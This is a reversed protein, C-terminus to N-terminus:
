ARTSPEPCLHAEFGRAEVGGRSFRAAIALVVIVLALPEQLRCLGGEGLRRAHRRDADAVAHREIEDVAVHTDRARSIRGEHGTCM